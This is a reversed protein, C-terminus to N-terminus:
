QRRYQTYNASGRATGPQFETTSKTVRMIHAMGRSTSPPCRDALRGAQCGLNGQLFSFTNARRFRDDILRNRDTPAVQTGYPASSDRNGCEATLRRRTIRLRNRRPPNKSEYATLKNPASRHPPESQTVVPPFPDFGTPRDASVSAPCPEYTSAGTEHLPSLKPNPARIQRCTARRHRAM